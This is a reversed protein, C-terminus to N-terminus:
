PAVEPGRGRHEDRFARLADYVEPSFDPCGLLRGTGEPGPSNNWATAAVDFPMESRPVVLLQHGDQEVLARLGARAEEGLGPEFWIVVRGHELSHVIASDPAAEEYIGDEASAHFHRGTTPPNTDYDIQEYLDATHDSSRARTSRLDCNAARAASDLEKIHPEPVDGGAPLRATVGRAAQRAEGANSASEDSDGGCGALAVALALAFVSSRAV